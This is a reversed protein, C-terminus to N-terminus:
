SQRPQNTNDRQSICRQITQFLMKRDIPKSAFEDCGAQICNEREESMAHATLAIIPGIYGRNRLERTARYGDLVPMQMDMLVVDFRRGNAQSSLAQEVADRGNGVVVVEAGSRKLIFSILEQNDPGDEALLVRIQLDEQQMSELSSRQQLAEVDEQTLQAEGVDGACVTVTFTSGKGVHSEVKLDGGLDRCIRRSITLGLGTGGFRRTM